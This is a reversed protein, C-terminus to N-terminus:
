TSMPRRTRWTTWTSCRDRRRRHRALRRRDLRDARALARLPRARAGGRGLRRLDGRHAHRRRGPARRLRALRHARRAGPLRDRRPDGPRDPAPDRGHPGEAQRGVGRAPHPRGDVRPADRVRGDDLGQRPRCMWRPVSDEVSATCLVITKGCTVLASGHAQELYDPQISYPRLQDPRRGDHRTVGGGGRAARRDRARGRRAAAPPFAPRAGPVGGPRRHHPLSVHGRADRRERDGQARADRRGRARDGRRLLRAHRRPRLRAPLDAPHAPLAHLRPHGHRLRGGQDARRVRSGGRDDRRRVPRRERDAPRAEPLRRRHPPRGRRAHPRADAYRGAEVTAETAM